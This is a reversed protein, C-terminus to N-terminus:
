TAASNYQFFVNLTGAKAYRSLKNHLASSANPMSSNGMFIALTENGVIAEWSHNKGTVSALYHKKSLHVFVDNLVADSPLTFSYSHPADVDDGMCVSDREVMVCYESM